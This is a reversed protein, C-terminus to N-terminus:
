RRPPARRRAPRDALRRPGGHDEAPYHPRPDGRVRPDLRHAPRGLLAELPLRDDPDPGRRRVVRDASATARLALPGGPPQGGRDPDAARALAPRARPSRDGSAGRRDSEPLDADPLDPAARLADGDG